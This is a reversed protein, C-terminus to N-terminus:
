KQLPKDVKVLKRRIDQKCKKAKPVFKLEEKKVPDWQKVNPRM